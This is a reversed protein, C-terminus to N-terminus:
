PRWLVAKKAIIAHKSILAHESACFNSLLELCEKSNKMQERALPNVAINSICKLANTTLLDYSEYLLGILLNVSEIEGNTGSPVIARKGEDTTTIAMLAGTAACRVLLDSDKLLTILVSVADGQIASMKAMEAFCLTSLTNAAECRVAKDFSGLLSICTEVASHGLADELGQDDYLCNCLLRLALPQMVVVENAAKGVLIAPYNSAILARAGQICGASIEILAEYIHLRVDNEDDDLAPAVALATNAALMARSGNADRACIQLAKSARHRTLPDPDSSVQENLVGVIGADVCGVVSAPNKFEDCLVFLASVRVARKASRVENVLKPCMGAGFAPTIHKEDMVVAGGKAEHLTIM